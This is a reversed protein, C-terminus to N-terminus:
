SSTPPSSTTRATTTSTTATSGGGSSASSPSRRPTPEPRDELDLLTLVSAVGVGALLLAPVITWGIELKTNGHIQPPCAATTTRASASAGPWSSCASRSSSSSSAPSSRVGPRRPQRDDAGRARRARAHRAPRRRRLRRHRAAAARRPRRAAAPCAPMPEQPPAPDSTTPTVRPAAPHDHRARHRGPRLDAEHGGDDEAHEEEHHEIIASAAPPRPVGPSSSASRRVARAVGAVVNPPLAEAQHRPAHRHRPHRRASCTAVAVAGLTPRRHPARPLLRRGHRRRRAPRRAPGRLPGHAPRPRTPQGRPRRHGAGVLRPGDVRRARRAPRHRRRHVPRQQDVLGLVVLAAGFAGVLPWYALTPPPWSPPRPRPAPWSPRARRPQRRPHRARRPRPLHGVLASRCSSRTASTTASAARTAPPSRARARHRRHTWGYAAALVLSVLGLGLFWKSGTTFM